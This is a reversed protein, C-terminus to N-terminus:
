ENNIEWRSNLQILGLDKVYKNKIEFSYKKEHSDYPTFSNYPHISASLFYIGELLPLKDIIYTVSGKGEIFPIEM